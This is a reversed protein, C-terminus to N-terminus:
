EFSASVSPEGPLGEYILTVSMGAKMPNLPGISGVSVFDGAKLRKGQRELMDSVWIVAELPHGLVARGPAVSIERGEADTLRATFDALMAVGEEGAPIEVLDGMVGRWAGVNISTIAPGDLKQDAGVVLAPLELFPRVGRIHELAEAPTQADNVGDEAIEVILDAEFLARHAAAASVTAGDELLMGELLAGLVPESVGFAAQAKESTLGAKWGVVPGNEGELRAVIKRQACLADQLSGGAAM